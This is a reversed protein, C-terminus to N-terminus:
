HHEPIQFYYSYGLRFFFISQDWHKSYYRKQCSLAFGRMFIVFLFYIFGTTSSEFSVIFSQLLTKKGIFM